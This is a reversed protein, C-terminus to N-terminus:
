CRRRRPAGDLLVGLPCGSGRFALLAPALLFVGCLWEKFLPWFGAMKPFSIGGPLAKVFFRQHLGGRYFTMRMRRGLRGARFAYKSIRM